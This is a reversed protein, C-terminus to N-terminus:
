KVQEYKKIDKLESIKKTYDEAYETTGYRIVIQSKGFVATRSFGIFRGVFKNGKVTLLEIVDGQEFTIKGFSGIQKIIM